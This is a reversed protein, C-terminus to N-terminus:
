HQGEVVRAVALMGIAQAARDELKQARQLAAASDVHAAAENVEEVIAIVDKQETRNSWVEDLAGYAIDFYRNAQDRNGAKGTAFGNAAAERARLSPPMQRLQDSVDEGRRSIAQLVSANEEEPMEVQGSKGALQAVSQAMADSRLSEAYQKSGLVKQMASTAINIAMNRSGSDELTGLWDLLKLGARSASDKEVHPAVSAYLQSIVPADSNAAQADKPLAGFATEFERQSWESSAGSQNMVALLARAAFVHQNLAEDLLMRARELTQRPCSTTAAIISQQATGVAQAPIGSIFDSATACSVKGSALASVAPVQGLQVLNLEIRAGEDGLRKALKADVPAALESGAALVRLRDQPDIQPLAVASRVVDIVFQKQPSLKRSAASAQRPKTSLSRTDSTRSRGAITMQAALIGGLVLFAALLAPGITTKNSL